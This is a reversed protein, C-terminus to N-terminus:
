CTALASEIAANFARVAAGAGAPDRWVAGGVALFDAGAGVLAACDAIAINGAAVCPLAM